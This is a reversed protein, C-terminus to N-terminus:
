LAGATGTGKKKKKKKKFYDNKSLAGGGGGTSLLAAINDALRDGMGKDEHWRMTDPEEGLDSARNGSESQVPEFVNSVKTKPQEQPVVPVQAADVPQAVTAAGWGSILQHFANAAFEKGVKSGNLVMKQEHDIITAGYIRGQENERLVLEISQEKLRRELDERSTAAAMSAALHSKLMDKKFNKLEKINRALKKEISDIGCKKGLASAKIPNAVRNGVDDTPSYLLGRYPKGDRQQGKVLQMDVNYLSLLARLENATEFKYGDLLHKTINGIQYGVRGKGVDVKEPVWVRQDKKLDAPHLNRKREIDNTIDKSKTRDNSGGFSDKLKKGDRGINTTVIHVHHRDIDEHKFVVYPQDAAGMREMYEQAIERLEDDTLVDQPSPNLSITVIPKETKGMNPNKLRASFAWELENLYCRGDEHVNVLNGCLVKAHEEDVKDTNYKLAGYLNSGTEIKAVM